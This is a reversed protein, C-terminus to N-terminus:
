YLLCISAPLEDNINCASIDMRSIMTPHVAPMSPNQSADECFRRGGIKPPVLDFGKQPTDPRFDALTSPAPDTDCQTTNPSDKM